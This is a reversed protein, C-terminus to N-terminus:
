NLKNLFCSPKIYFGNLLKWTLVFKRFLYPLITSATNEIKVANPFTVNNLLNRAFAGDGIATVSNSITVKILEKGALVTNEIATIPLGHLRSPININQKTEM